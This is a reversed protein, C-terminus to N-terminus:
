HGLRWIMVAAVIALLVALYHQWALKDEAYPDDSSQEAGEPLSAMSTLTTGFPINIKARANVAWGNADLVPGLNRQKLKFWALLMAPGSIILMLVVIVIPFQWWVLGLLGTVVSALATGLAGVALGIAAFIGAFKAIDFPAPAAKGTSAQATSDAAQLMKGEAAQSKSTAFKQIQSGILKAVRKYPSWFAQRISIPHELIRVITADWDRGQRDYFLGNRGVMLQDSDGATVAAAITMKEGGSKRVCECYALYIGSLNALTAHKGIDDVHFCLECCRGDLYLTGVQFVAKGQRAYFDRFSVFNNLLVYLDRCYRLFKGVNILAKVESELEKDKYILDDIKSKSDSDLITRIRPVGLKEVGTVPQEALWSELASFRSCLEEWQAASLSSLDGFVPVLVQQRFSQMAPMWAPNLGKDLPLEHEAGIAALPFSAIIGASRDLVSNAMAQIDDISCSLPAGAREDFAVLRCRTFYDDIKAHVAQWSNRADLTGEGLFWIDEKGEAQAWWDSYTKAEEFFRDVLGQDIGSSGNLDAVSGCSDIIDQIVQKLEVAEATEPAIVGDGNFRMAVLLSTAVSTDDLTISTADSKDLDALIRRSAALLNRGEDCSDNIAALPVSAKGQLMLTADKLLSTTWNVAALVEPVRIHGDQDTDILALTETDFEIGKAPCSLAVWLKQDLQDLARLDSWTDVLAQDFGGARFFRWTHRSPNLDASDM